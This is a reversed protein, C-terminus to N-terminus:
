LLSILRAFLNFGCTIVLRKIDYFVPKPNSLYPLPEQTLLVSKLAPVSKTEFFINKEAANYPFPLLCDLYFHLVKKM